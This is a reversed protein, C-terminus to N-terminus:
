YDDEPDPLEVCLFGESDAEQPVFRQINTDYIRGRDSIYFSKYGDILMWSEGECQQYPQLLLNIQTTDRKIQQKNKKYEDETM